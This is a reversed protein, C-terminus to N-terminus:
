EPLLMTGDPGLPMIPNWAVEWLHGDPDAFYGSRGGWFVDQAAKVLIAGAAVAHALTGDVEEKKSVNHALTIGSFARGAEQGTDEALLHRPYLALALGQLRFFAIQETSASSLPFRLGERYFRVARPLVAVGLTILTLRPEM